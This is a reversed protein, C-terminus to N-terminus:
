RDIHLTRREARGSSVAGPDAAQIRGLFEPIQPSTARGRHWSGLAIALPHIPTEVGNQLQGPDLLKPKVIEPVREGAPVHHVAAVQVFRGLNRTVCVDLHDFAVGFQGLTVDGPRAARVRSTSASPLLQTDVAQDTKKAAAYSQGPDATTTASAIYSNSDANQSWTYNNQVKTVPGPLQNGKYQAVLGTALGSTGFTWYKEGVGGLDDLQTFQHVAYSPSTEHSFSYRAQTSGDKSLYRRVVERHKVSSPYNATTYDYALYGKYPLIHTLEGSGNYSFEHYPSNTTITM